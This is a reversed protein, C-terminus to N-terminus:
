REFEMNASKKSKEFAAKKNIKKDKSIIDNVKQKRIEDSSISKCVWGLKHEVISKLARLFTSKGSGPFGM